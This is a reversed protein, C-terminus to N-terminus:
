GPQGSGAGQASLRAALEELAGVQGRVLKEAAETIPFWAARDVEPFSARRGSGPPWELEFTNSHVTGVELDGEGAWVLVTKGGPQHVPALALLRDPGLPLPRGLEERFERLATAMPDEGAEYEGKPLSWAGRERRAWFPGGMHVLLVEPPGGRPRRYLLVGASRRGSM